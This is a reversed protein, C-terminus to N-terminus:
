YSYNLKNRFNLIYKVYQNSINKNKFKLSPKHICGYTGEGIVESTKTEENM